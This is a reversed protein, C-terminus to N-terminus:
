GHIAETIKRSPKHEGTLISEDIRLTVIEVLRLDAPVRCGATLSVVDGVALEDVNVEVLQLINTFIRCENSSYYRIIESYMACTPWM